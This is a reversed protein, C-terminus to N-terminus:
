TPEQFAWRQLKLDGNRDITLYPYDDGEIWSGLNWTPPGEEPVHTHGVILNEKGVPPMRRIKIDELQAFIRTRQQEPLLKWLEEEYEGRHRVGVETQHIEIRKQTEKPLTKLKLEESRMMWISLLISVAAAVAFGASWLINGLFFQWAFLGLFILSVLAPLYTRYKWIVSTILGGTNGQYCLWECIEDYTAGLQGPGDQHGHRFEFTHRTQVRDGREPLKLSKPKESSADTFEFENLLARRRRSNTRLAYGRWKYWPILYDHNGVVYQLKGIKGSRKLRVLKQLLEKNEMLLEDDDRRWLDLFDGLIVLHDIREANQLFRDVFDEFARKNKDDEWQGIHVDSFAVVYYDGNVAM